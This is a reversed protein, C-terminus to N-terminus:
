PNAKAPFTFNGTFVSGAQLVITDGPQSTNLAQQFGSSTNVNFTAGGTPPNWTTDIYVQPLAPVPEQAMAPLTCLLALLLLLAGSFRIRPVAVRPLLGSFVFPYTIM